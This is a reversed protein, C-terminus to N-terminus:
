NRRFHFRGPREGLASPLQGREEPSLLRRALGWLLNPDDPVEAGWFERLRDGEVDWDPSWVRPLAAELEALGQSDGVKWPSYNLLPCTVAPVIPECMDHPWLSSDVPITLIFDAVKRLQKRWKATLLAPCVFGEMLRPDLTHGELLTGDDLVDKRRVSPLGPYIGAAQASDSGTPVGRRHGQWAQRQISAV